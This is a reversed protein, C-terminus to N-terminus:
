TRVPRQSRPLAATGTTRCQETVRCCSHTVHTVRAALRLRERVLPTGDTNPERQTSNLRRHQGFSWQAAQWTLLFSRWSLKEFTQWSAKHPSSECCKGVAIPVAAQLPFVVVNGHLQKM